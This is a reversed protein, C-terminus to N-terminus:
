QFDIKVWSFDAVPPGLTWILKALRSPNYNQSQGWRSEQFRWNLFQTEDQYSLARGCRQFHPIIGSRCTGQGLSQTHTDREAERKGEPRPHRKYFSYGWTTAM